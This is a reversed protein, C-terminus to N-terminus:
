CLVKSVFEETMQNKLDDKLNEVVSALSAQTSAMADLRAESVFLKSQLEAVERTHNDKM